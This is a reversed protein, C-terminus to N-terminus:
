NETDGFQYDDYVKTYEDMKPMEVHKFIDLKNKPRIKELWIFGQLRVDEAPLLYPPNLNGAPETRLKIGTIQKESLFISLNSSEARNVGIVIDEDKPYYVTQGNGDVDIRYIENNKIHGVMNRGKIQNFLLSDGEPSIIFASNILEAKYLENNRSFLKITQATMQNEQAWIVPSNYFTNTSDRFDYVMSDCRGQMDTRFFKVNYYAKVLKSEEQPLPIAQLTDAHLFLTDNQYIQLLQARKTALAYESLENYYGYDGTIILNNTTDHLEFNSFAEGLGKQRDYYITDGKLLNESGQVYSQNEGKLLHAKDNMTDYHGNESYILNNDSHIFTPGLITAVETVTHYKLTDSFITYRPNHVVVSDKFHVESVDPYYYGWDSILTNQGSLVEGGNFYYGFNKIRDYDLFETLVTIDQKEIKVNERVRAIGEVTNYTLKDGFLHISDNQIIHIHHFAEIFTSDQYNHLYASDCHMITNEHKLKVNGLLLQVNPGLNARQEGTNAHLIEVKAKTQASLTQNISVISLILLTLTIRLHM